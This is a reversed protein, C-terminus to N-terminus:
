RYFFYIFEQHEEIYDDLYQIKLDTLKDKVIPINKRIALKQVQILEPKINDNFTNTLDVELVTNDRTVLDYYFWIDGGNIETKIEVKRVEDWSYIKKNNPFNNTGIGYNGVYFFNLNLSAAVILLTIIIAVTAKDSIQVNNFWKNKYLESDIAKAYLYIEMSFIRLLVETILGLTILVAFFTAIYKILEFAGTSQVLIINAEIFQKQIYMFLKNSLLTLYGSIALSALVFVLYILKAKKSIRNEMYMENLGSGVQIYRERIICLVGQRNLGFFYLV